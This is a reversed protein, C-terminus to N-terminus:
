GEELHKDVTGLIRFPFAKLFPITKGKKLARALIYTEIEADNLATHSEIFENDKVLYRYTSEASTKFFKGSATFLENDCCFNKYNKNDLLRECALGWIDILPYENGRLEFTPVLYKENKRYPENKLIRECSKKQYEEWENYNNSYLSRIYKETFPIAKKFDFCANYATVFNVTDLDKLLIEIVNDWTDVKIAGSALLEMYLPRKDKYYATNFVNPVFFTEQILYNEKKVINGKRDAITWGIDYVLPKAISLTQRQNDTLNEIDKIFPLTATETDLTLFYMKKM